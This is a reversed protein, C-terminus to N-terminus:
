RCWPSVRVMPTHVPACARPRAPAHTRPRAPARTHTAPSAGPFHNIKQLRGMKKIREFSVSTDLWTVHWDNAEEHEPGLATWKLEEATDTVSEYKTLLLGRLKKVRRLDPGAKAVAAIKAVALAATAAATIRYLAQEGSGDAESGAEEPEETKEAPEAPEAEAEPPSSADLMQDGPGSLSLQKKEALKFKFPSYYDAGLKRALNRCPTRQQEPCDQCEGQLVHDEKPTEARAPPGDVSEESAQRAENLIHKGCETEAEM